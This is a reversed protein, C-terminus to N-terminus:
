WEFEVRYLSDDEITTIPAILKHQVTDNVVQIAKNVAKGYVDYESNDGSEYEILDEDGKDMLHMTDRFTQEENVNVKVMVEQTLTTVYRGLEDQHVEIKSIYLTTM